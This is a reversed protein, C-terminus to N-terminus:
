RGESATKTNPHAKAAAAQRQHAEALAKQLKDRYEAVQTRLQSVEQTLGMAKEKEYQKKAAERKDRKQKETLPKSDKKSGKKDKSATSTKSDEKKPTEIGSKKKAANVLKELAQKLQDLRKELAAKEALLEKKRSPRMGASGGGSSSGGGAPAAQAGRQRGKLHKHEEYYRHAKDPDYAHFLQAVAREGMAVYEDAQRM